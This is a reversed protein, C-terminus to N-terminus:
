VKVTTSKLNLDPLMEVRHNSEKLKAITFLILYIQYEGGYLQPIVTQVGEFIDPYGNVILVVMHIALLAHLEHPGTNGHRRNWCIGFSLIKIKIQKKTIICVQNKTEYPLEIQHANSKSHRETESSLTNCDYSGTKGALIAVM